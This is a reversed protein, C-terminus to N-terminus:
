RTACRPQAAGPPRGAAFADQSLAAVLRRRETTLERLRAADLADQADRLRAGLDALEDVVAPRDLALANVIWAAVTPKRM